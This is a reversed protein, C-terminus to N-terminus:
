RRLERGHEADTIEPTIREILHEVAPPLPQLNDPMIFPLPQDKRQKRIEKYEDVSLHEIEVPYQEIYCNVELAQKVGMLWRFMKGKVLIHFNFSGYIFDYLGYIGTKNGNYIVTWSADDIEMTMGMLKFFLPSWKHNKYRSLVDCDVRFLGNTKRYIYKPSYKGPITDTVAGNKIQETEERSDYPVFANLEGFSLMALEDGPKPLMVSDLGQSNAIRGYRRCARAKATSDSKKYGKVKGDVFFYELMYESYLQLTDTPSAGSSYERAYTLVRTIPRDVPNVEVEALNYSAPMMMVSDAEADSLTLAEYGLCRFSLPYDGPTVAIKGDGDSLGIILGNSSFVSVGALASRDSGDALTVTKEAYSTAVSALLAAACMM